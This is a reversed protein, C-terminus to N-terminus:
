CLDSDQSKVTELASLPSLAIHMFSTVFGSGDEVVLDHVNLIGFRNM